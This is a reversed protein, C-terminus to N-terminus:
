LGRRYHLCKKIKAFVLMKFRFYRSYVRFLDLSSQQIRNGTYLKNISALFDPGAQKHCAPNPM